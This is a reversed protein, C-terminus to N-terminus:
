HCPEVPGVDWWRNTVGACRWPGRDAASSELERPSSLHDRGAARVVVCSRFRNSVTVAVRRSGWFRWSRGKSGISPNRVTDTEVSSEATVPRHFVDVRFWSWCRWPRGPPKRCAGSKMLCSRRHQPPSPTRSPLRRHRWPRAQGNPRQGPTALRDDERGGPQDLRHRIGV